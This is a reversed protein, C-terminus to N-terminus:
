KARVAGPDPLAERVTPSSTQRLGKVTLYRKLRDSAKIDLSSDLTLDLAYSRAEVDEATVLLHFRYHGAPLLVPPDVVPHYPVALFLAEAPERPRRVEALDVRRPMGSHLSPLMHDPRGAWKLTRAPARHPAGDDGVIDLMWVEVDHATRRGKGNVVRLRVFLWEGDQPEGTYSLVMDDTDAHFELSLRPRRRAEHWIPGFLAVLVAGLTAIAGFAIFATQTAYLTSTDSLL